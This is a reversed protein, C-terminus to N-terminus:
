KLVCEVFYDFISTLKRSVEHNPNFALLPKMNAYAEVVIDDYPVRGLADVQLEKIIKDTYAPALNFKNIILFPKVKFHDALELLRKAGALSSPSPEVVVILINAGAISSVVPCGIGAAADVIVHKLENKHAIEHAREKALYVLDGTNRGGVELDATVVPVGAYSIDAYISGTARTYYEICKVPCVISCAGCGECYEEIVSPKDNEISIAQFKCVEYCKYCSICKGQNIRAKRSKTVTYKFLNEKSGGLSLLLDPAEADADVAVIPEINRHLYYALNSSIFTKGTGGKGSAIVIEM